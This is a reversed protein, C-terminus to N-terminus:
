FKVTAGAYVSRGMGAVPIGWPMDASILAMTTGQGVYAGGLPLYYMRNFINEVGFDFRLSNWNYATRFNVLTYGPTKAENRVASTDSKKEVGILELVNDWGAIKQTLVVKANLPMINYLNGGTDLNKGNTYNLLGKLGFEGIGTKALPMQGSLDIGYLRATQNTYKLVTFQNTQLPTRAANTTGNWQVADIYDAVRTYYPTAKFGMDQSDAHWDLTASLTHAKEPKLNVDGIYGNGDGVFNNMISMMNATSWTYREYLNPSRVKRAFGFEFDNNANATYRALATVDVNGDTKGRDANNFSVADRTQSMMGGTGTTPAAALNYGHVPDANTQVQEYRLGLQTMLEPNLNKEWEGFVATRDRKGNNINQFDNPGMGGAGVVAPWWDDLKYSQYEAGVRLVAQMGVDIGAKLSAGTTKGATKMPMGQTTNGSTYLFKKDPGFDMYHDVREQFAKAELTGWDLEGFYRLNIRKQNNDLMDMRQNPYYEYPINQIGLKAEVLHNANKLALGLTQNRTKFATSGVEDLPLTHGTVGTDTRTKFDAGAKYNGSEAMAGSYTLSLSESALTVNANFGRQSGNSGYRAGVEGKKLSGQGGSAFEPSKTNAIITGGISDGGISVPAIGAFVKLEGVNSPDVYSLPSNMHNPCSAVLDMGDVKTRIRDDAMGHIVPLSSVGGAGYLSVGPQDQLMKATDSTYVRKQELGKADLGSKSPAPLPELKNATVVVESLTATDAAFANSSLAFAICISIRKFHM